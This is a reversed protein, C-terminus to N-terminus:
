KMNANDVTNTYFFFHTHVPCWLSGNKTTTTPATWTGDKNHFANTHSFLLTKQSFIKNHQKSSAYCLM